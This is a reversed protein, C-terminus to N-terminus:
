YVGRYDQRQTPFLSLAIRPPSKVSTPDLARMDDADSDSYGEWGGCIVLGLISVSRGSICFMDMGKSEWQGEELISSASSPDSFVYHCAHAAPVSSSTARTLVQGGDSASMASTAPCALVEKAAKTATNSTSSWKRM